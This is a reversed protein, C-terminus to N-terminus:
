KIIPLDSLNYNVYGKQNKIWFPAEIDQGKLNKLYEINEETALEDSVRLYVDSGNELEVKLQRDIFSKSEGTEKDKYSITRELYKRAEAKLYMM